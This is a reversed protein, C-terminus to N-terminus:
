GDVRAEAGPVKRHDRVGILLFHLQRIDAPQIRAVPDLDVVVIRLRLEECDYADDAILQRQIPIQKGLEIGGIVSSHDYGSGHNGTDYGVCATCAMQRFGAVTDQVKLCAVGVRPVRGDVGPGQQDAARRM